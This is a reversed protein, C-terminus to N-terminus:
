VCAWALVEADVYSLVRQLIDRVLVGDRGSLFRDCRDRLGAVRVEIRAIVIGLSDTSLRCGSHQYIM